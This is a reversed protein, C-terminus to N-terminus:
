MVSRGRLCSLSARTRIHRRVRNTRPRSIVFIRCRLSSTVCKCIATGVFVRKQAERIWTNFIICFKLAFPTAAAGDAWGQIGGHNVHRSVFDALSAPGLFWQGSWQPGNRSLGPLKEPGFDIKLDFYLSYFFLLAPGSLCVVGNQKM